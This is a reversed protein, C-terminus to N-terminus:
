PYFRDMASRRDKAIERRKVRTTPISVWQLGEDKTMRKQRVIEANEKNHTPLPEAQSSTRKKFLQIHLPQSAM